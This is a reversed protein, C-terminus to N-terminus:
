PILGNAVTATIKVDAESTSSKYTTHARGFADSISSTPTCRPSGVAADDAWQVTKGPVPNNYQDRVIATISSTSSGDAPVITPEATVAISDVVRALLTKEYNYVTSWNEDSEPDGYTTGLQLRYMSM